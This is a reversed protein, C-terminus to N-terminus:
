NAVPFVLLQSLSEDEGMVIYKGDASSTITGLQFGRWAIGQEIGTAVMDFEPNGYDKFGDKDNYRFLHSYGPSGGAIGYLSGDKGFTLGRLRSMMVPKGMNKVRKTLPDIMFLQGDGANGGYLKGDKSKTWSEVQGLVNRGWVEPLSDKLINFQETKPDFYFLRNIPLSGYVNGSNDIALAKCIYNDPKLSFEHELKNLDVPEPILNNYTKSKKTKIDFTFFIGKPYTVGYLMGSKENIALAHIGEGPVPVGLDAMGAIGTQSIKVEIIHGDKGGDKVGNPITGAYLTSANTKHFGTVIGKQGPIISELDKFEKMERGSISAVFLYPSLGEVANTGGIILDGVVSLSTIANRYVPLRKMKTNDLSVEIAFADKPKFFSYQASAHMMLMGTIAILFSKKMM